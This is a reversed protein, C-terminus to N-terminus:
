IRWALMGQRGTVGGDRRHSFFLEPLCSTCRDIRQVRRAGCALLRAEILGVLDLQRGDAFEEANPGMSEIVEPGVEFHDQCIGPGIAADYPEGRFEACAAEVIGAAVPRWGCHLSTTRSASSIVIGPCDAGTILVPRGRETTTAGDAIPPTAPPTRPIEIVQSGHVQNLLLPQAIGLEDQIKAVNRAVVGADDDTAHGFNLSDFPGESFGGTRTTFVARAGPLDVEFM